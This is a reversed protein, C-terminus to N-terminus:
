VASVVSASFDQHDFMRGPVENVPVLACELRLSRTSPRRCHLDPPM